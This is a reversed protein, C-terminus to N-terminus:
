RQELDRNCRRHALTAILAEPTYQCGNANTKKRSSLSANVNPECERGIGASLRDFDGLFEGDM